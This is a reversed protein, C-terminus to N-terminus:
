ALCLVVPLLVGCWIIPPPPAGGACVAFVVIGGPATLVACCGLMFLLVACLLGLCCRVVCDACCSTARGLSGLAPVVCPRLRGPPPVFLYSLVWASWLCGSGSAGFAPAPPAARRWLLFFRCRLGRLPVMCHRLGLSSSSAWSFLGFAWPEWHFCLLLWFLLPCLVFFGLPPPCGCLLPARPVGPRFFRFASVLAACSSPFFFLPVCLESLVWFLAFRCHSGHPPVLIRGPPRATRGPWSGRVSLIVCLFVAPPGPSGAMVGLRPFACVCLCFRCGGSGCVPSCTALAWLSPVCWVVLACVPSCAGLPWPSLVCLVGLM